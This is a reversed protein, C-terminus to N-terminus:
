SNINKIKQTFKFGYAFYILEINSYICIGYKRTYLGPATNIGVPDSVLTSNLAPSQLMNLLAKNFQIIYCVEVRFSVPSQILFYPIHLIIHFLNQQLIRLNYTRFTSSSSQSTSSCYKFFCGLPLLQQMVFSFDQSDMSLIVTRAIGCIIESVGLFNYLKAQNSQHM